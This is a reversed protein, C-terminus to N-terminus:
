DFISANGDGQVANDSEMFIFDIGDNLTFYARLMDAFESIRFDRFLDDEFELLFASGPLGVSECRLQYMNGVIRNVTIEM